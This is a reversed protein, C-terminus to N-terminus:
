RSEMWFAQLHPWAFAESARSLRHTIHSCYYNPFFSFPMLSTCANMVTVILWLFCFAVSVLVLERLGTLIRGWLAALQPSVVGSMGRQCLLEKYLSANSMRVQSALTNCTTQSLASNRKAGKKLDTRRGQERVCVLCVCFVCVKERKCVCVRGRVEVSQLGSSKKQLAQLLVSLMATSAAAEPGSGPLLNVALRVHQLWPLQDCLMSLTALKAPDLRLLPAKFARQAGRRKRRRGSEKKSSGGNMQATVGVGAAAGVNGHQVNVHQQQRSQSSVSSSGSGGHENNLPPQQQQQQPQQNEAHRHQQQSQQQQNETQRHRQLHVWEGLRRQQRQQEQQAAQAQQQRAQHEANHHQAEQQLQPLALM